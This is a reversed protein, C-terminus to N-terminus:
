GIGYGNGQTEITAAGVTGMTKCIYKWWRKLGVDEANGEDAATEAYKNMHLGWWGSYRGASGDDEKMEKTVRM